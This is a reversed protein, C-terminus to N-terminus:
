VGRAHRPKAVTDGHSHLQQHCTPHLLVRNASGDSGGKSRWVIHHSHWGTLRTIKQGCRPCIGDQERWLALLQRRGALGQEMKVDLRAEFYAEWAPDFPNAEKRILTHRRIPMDAARHLYVTYPKGGSGTVEGAFRWSDTGHPPFYKAKRWRANKKPHRRRIWRWLKLFIARDVATFTAKSAGFRHYGAWGDIVPNLLLVLQGAPLGKNRDIIGRIKTLFANVNAKSPTTLVKGNPYKRVRQGLFDFGDAVRTIVTKEASLELGRERLFREVLPKVEGALLERSRGTIVFDDAYRALNVKLSTDDKQRPFHERLLDDLGDLALTALVPSIIGGQPTGEETRYLAHKDMYGAKLWKRLIDKDMPVHALLWSHSIRSFCSKIDGELVWEPGNRKALVTHLFVLADATCREPRFGYSHQDATTEAVPSLALLYLAQMARDAMTPIDLPRMAGNAKPIYVRRLPRPHYGRQRLGHVAQAKKRPTDWTVRDVGPTRKGQNETVRRVALAKGSFSHTLLHQLARVKGYRGAQQAQVIRAQLRRVERHVKAWDIEHWDAAGLSAAGAAPEMEARPSTTTGDAAM